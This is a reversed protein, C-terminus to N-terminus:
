KGDPSQAGKKLAGIIGTIAGYLAVVAPVAERIVGGLTTVNDALITVTNADITINFFTYLAGGIFVVVVGFFRRSVYWPKDKGNEEKYAKSVDKWQALLKLYKFM